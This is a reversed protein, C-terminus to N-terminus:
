QNKNVIRIDSAGTAPEIVKLALSIRNRENIRNWIWALLDEGNGELPLLIPEGTFPPLPTGDGRYTTICWGFGPALSSFEFFFRQSRSADVPDAKIIALWASGNGETALTGGAIRPTFHPEDPEHQHQRLAEQFTGGGGLVECLTDTHNGNSVIHHGGIDNMATYIVLSPDEMEGAHFPETRVVSGERVFVRNRSNESRGMIWYFQVFNGEDMRGVIIGRGPYSNEALRRLNEGAERKLNQM